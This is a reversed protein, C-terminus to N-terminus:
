VRHESNCNAGGSRKYVMTGFNSRSAGIEAEQDKEGAKDLELQSIKAALLKSTESPDTAKKAAVKKSAPARANADNPQSGHAGMSSASHKEMHSTSSALGSAKKDTSPGNPLTHAQGNLGLPQPHPAVAAM